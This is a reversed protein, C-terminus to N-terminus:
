IKIEDEEKNYFHYELIHHSTVPKINIKRGYKLFWKQKKSLLGKTFYAEIFPHVALTLNKQNQEKVLYDLDREIQDTLLISAQVEGSGGCSPCKETTKEKVQPRVRERTIQVLGFKSPPLITHTAPDSKMFDKLKEYLTKRHNPNRMDIFDCVIIGGIDRLRLQRAIEEAAELNVDLANGDQDKNSHSRHGSNVDIVHMAETHEIILYGGSKINVVKGFSAKIQKDIGFHEFIPASGKYLKVIGEKDPSINHIYSKIDHYLNQNNVYVASFSANLMDRLITISRNMEGLMITPATANKLAHFMKEWKDSLDKMDADLEAVSRNEAVTRIIVGFNKPKISQVLTRLRDREEQRRIKQSISIKDSFPILVLYRGPLSIDATLRPGKNSIPEKMVQVLINQNNSVVRNIKGTKVIDPENKFGELMHTSLSGNHAANTFKVLSEIQPGLDLYHLFADKEHGVDIFAANLGPMIKKVRGLFIDGVSFGQDSRERNLEILRKDHLLAIVVESPTTNIYLESNM